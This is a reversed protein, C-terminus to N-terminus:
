LMNSSLYKTSKHQEEWIRKGEDEDEDKQERLSMETKADELMQKAETLSITPMAYSSVVPVSDDIDISAKILAALWNKVDEKSDVAFYHVRPQTFTLGKKSGPQPPLLKFIYKGSRTSAAYLAVLKDDDKIPVVRHGTIDILGREKSDNFSGFYSLRTGHLTFFRKKWTGMKGSSKKHMWGSCTADKMAEEPTISRIGELFATTNKKNNSSFKLRQKSKNQNTLESKPRSSKSNSVSKPTVDQKKTPTLSSFASSIGSGGVFM